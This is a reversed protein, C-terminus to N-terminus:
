FKILFFFRNSLMLCSHRFGTRLPCVNWLSPFLPTAFLHASINQSSSRQELCKQLNPAPSLSLIQSAPCQQLLFAPPGKRLRVPILFYFKFNLAKVPTLIYPAFIWFLLCFCYISGLVWCHKAQTNTSSKLQVIFPGSLWVSCNQFAFTM